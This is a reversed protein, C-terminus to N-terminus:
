RRTRTHLKNWQAALAPWTGSNDKGTVFTIAGTGSSSGGGGSSSCAALSSVSVVLAAGVALAKKARM